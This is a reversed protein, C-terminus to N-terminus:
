SVRLLVPALRAINLAVLKSTDVGAHWDFSLVASAGSFNDMALVSVTASM